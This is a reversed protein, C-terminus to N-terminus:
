LELKKIEDWYKMVSDITEHYLKIDDMLEMREQESSILKYYLRKIILATDGHIIMSGKGDIYFYDKTYVSDNCTKFYSRPNLYQSYGFGFIFLFLITFITKM